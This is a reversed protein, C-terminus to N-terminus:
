GAALGQVDALETQCQPCVVDRVFLTAGGNPPLHEAAQWSRGDLATVAGAGRVRLCQSCRLWVVDQHYRGVSVQRSVPLRPVLRRVYHEVMVSGGEGPTLTMELYRCLDPADCRYRVTRSSGTLRAAELCARMFMRTSDGAILDFLYRGVVHATTATQGENAHAFRDWDGSVAVVQDQADLLYWSAIAEDDPGAPRAVPTM